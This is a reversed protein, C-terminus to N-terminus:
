FPKSILPLFNDIDEFTQITSFSPLHKEIFQKATTTSRSLIASIQFKDQNNLLVPLHKEKIIIGTGIIRLKIPHKKM